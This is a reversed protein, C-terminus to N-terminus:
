GEFSESVEQPTAERVHSRTLWKEAQEPTVINYGKGIEGVGPWSVNKTSFVAVKKTKPKPAAEKVKQVRNASGSAIIGSENPRLSPVKKVTPNNSSSSGIVNEAKPADEKISTSLVENDAAVKETKTKGSM